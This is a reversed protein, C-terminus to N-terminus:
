ASLLFIEKNAKHACLYWCSLVNVLFLASVHLRRSYLTSLCCNLILDYNGFISFQFFFYHCLNSNKQMNEVINILSYLIIGYSLTM